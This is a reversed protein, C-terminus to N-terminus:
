VTGTQPQLDLPNRSLQQNETQILIGFATTRIDTFPYQLWPIAPDALLLAPLCAFLLKRRQHGKMQTAVLLHWWCKPHTEKGCITQDLFDRVPAQAKTPELHLLCALHAMVSVLLCRPGGDLWITSGVGGFAQPCEMCDPLVEQIVQQCLPHPLPPLAYQRDEGAQCGDCFTM